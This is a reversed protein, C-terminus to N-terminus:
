SFAPELRFFSIVDDVIEDVTWRPEYGIAAKIKTLNPIRRHIDEFGGNEFAREYPVTVIESTSGAKEKVLRALDM